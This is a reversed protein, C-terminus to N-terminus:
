KEISVDPQCMSGGIVLTKFLHFILEKEIDKLVHANESDENLLMERLLDGAPVGDFLEELCGRINGALTVIDADQLKDFVGTNTVTIDLPDIKLANKNLYSGSHIGISHLCSPSRFFSHLLSEYDDILDINIYGSYRFRQMTITQDLNLQLLQEEYEKKKLWIPEHSIHTFSFYDADNTYNEM